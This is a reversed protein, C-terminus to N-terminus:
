LWIKATTDKRLAAYIGPEALIAKKELHKRMVLEGKYTKGYDRAECIIKIAIGFPKSKTPCKTLEINDFAGVMTIKGASM